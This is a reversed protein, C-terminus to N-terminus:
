MQTNKNVKPSQMKSLLDRIMKREEQIRNEEELDQGDASSSSSNTDPRKVDGNVSVWFVM